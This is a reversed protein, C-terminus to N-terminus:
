PHSTMLMRRFVKPTLLVPNKGEVVVQIMRRKSDFRRACWSVLEKFDFVEPM